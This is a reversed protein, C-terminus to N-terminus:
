ATILIEGLGCVAAISQMQQPMNVFSITKGLQEAARCWELLLALGASEARVVGALDIRITDTAVSRFDPQRVLATVNSFLLEGSLQWNGDGPAQLQPAAM